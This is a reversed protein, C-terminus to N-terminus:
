PSVGGRTSGGGPIVWAGALETGADTPEAAAVRGAIARMQQDHEANATRGGYWVDAFIRVAASLDDSAAPLARSAEAAVESATRGLRNDVLGRAVLGAVLGRLRERIAEAWKGEAAYADAQREHETASRTPTVVDVAPRIRAGRGPLGFRWILIAVLVVFIAVFLLLGLNGGPSHSGARDLFDRVHDWVWDIAQSLLSPRQDRYAKKSLEHAAESAAPARPVPETPLGAIRM